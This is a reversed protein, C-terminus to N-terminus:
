IRCYVEYHCWSILSFCNTHYIIFSIIIYRNQKRLCYVYLYSMYSYIIIHLIPRFGAQGWSWMVRNTSNSIIVDLSKSTTQIDNLSCQYFCLKYLGCRPPTWVSESHFYVTTQRANKCCGCPPSHGEGRIGDTFFHSNSFWSCMKSTTVCKHDVFVVNLSSLCLLPTSMFVKVTRNIVTFIEANVTCQQQAHSYKLM